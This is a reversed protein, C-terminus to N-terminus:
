CRISAARAVLLNSNANLTSMSAHCNSDL